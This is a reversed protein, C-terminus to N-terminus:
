TGDEVYIDREMKSSLQEEGAVYVIIGEPVDNADSTSPTTAQVFDVTKSLQKLPM